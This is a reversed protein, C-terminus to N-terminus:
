AAVSRAEAMEEATMGPRLAPKHKHSGVPARPASPPAVPAPASPTPAKAKPKTRAAEEAKLIAMGKVLALTIVDANAQAAIAPARAALDKRIAAFEQGEATSTDFAGPHHQRLMTRTQHATQIEERRAPIERRIMRDTNLYLAKAHEASIYVSEAKSPDKGQDLANLEAPLEGGDPNAYAWERLRELNNEAQELQRLDHVAHLPTSPAPQAAPQSQKLEAMQRELEAARAEAAEAKKAAETHKATLKDIRKQMGAPGKPEDPAPQTDDAQESEDPATEEPTEVTPEPAQDSTPDEDITEAPAEPKVTAAPAMQSLGLLDFNSLKRAAAEDTATATTTNTPEEPM